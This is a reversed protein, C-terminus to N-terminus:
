FSFPTETKHCCCTGRYLLCPSPTTIFCSLSEHTTDCCIPENTFSSPPKAWDVLSLAPVDDDDAAVRIIVRKRSDRCPGPTCESVIDDVSDKADGADSVRCGHRPQSSRAYMQAHRLVSGSYITRV